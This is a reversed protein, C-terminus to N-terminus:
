ESVVLTHECQGLIWDRMSPGLVNIDAMVKDMICNLVIDNPYLMNRRLIHRCIAKSLSQDLLLMPFARCAHSHTLADVTPAIHM